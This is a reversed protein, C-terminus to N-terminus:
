VLVWVLLGALHELFDGCHLTVGGVVSGGGASRAKLFLGDGLACTDEAVHPVLISPSALLTKDHSSKVQFSRDQTRLSPHANTNSLHKPLINRISPNVVIDDDIIFYRFL